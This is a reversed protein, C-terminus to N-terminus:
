SSRLEELRHGNYYCIEAPVVTDKLRRRDRVPDTSRQRCDCSIPVLDALGDPLDYMSLTEATGALREGQVTCGTGHSVNVTTM